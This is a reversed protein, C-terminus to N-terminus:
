RFPWPSLVNVTLVSLDSFPFINIGLNLYKSKRDLAGVRGTIRRRYRSCPSRDNDVFVSFLRCIVLVCTKVSREMLYAAIVAGNGNDNQVHPRLFRFLVHAAPKFADFAM